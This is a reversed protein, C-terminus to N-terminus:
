TDGDTALGEPVGINGAETGDGEHERDRQAQRVRRKRISSRESSELDHSVERQYVGGRNPVLRLHYPNVCRFHACQRERPRCTPDHDTRYLVMGPPIPAIEREYIYRTVHRLNIAPRGQQLSGEWWWCQSQSRRTFRADVKEDFTIPKRLM